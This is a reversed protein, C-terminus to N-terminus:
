KATFMAPFSTQQMNGEDCVFWQQKENKGTQTQTMKNRYFYIASGRRCLIEKEWTHGSIWSVDCAVFTQTTAAYSRKMNLGIIM